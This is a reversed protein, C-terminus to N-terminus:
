VEFVKGIKSYKKVKFLEVSVFEPPWWIPATQATKYSMEM